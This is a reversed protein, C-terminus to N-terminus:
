LREYRGIERESETMDECQADTQKYAEVSRSRFEEYAERSVWFDITLYTRERNADKVLDTDVFDQEKQFLRTWAGAKGYEREFQEEMGRRVQFEWVVAFRWDRM